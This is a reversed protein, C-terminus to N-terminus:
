LSILLWYHSLLINSIHICIRVVQQAFTTQQSQGSFQVAMLMKYASFKYCFFTPIRHRHFALPKKSKGRLLINRCCTYLYKLLFKIKIETVCYIKKNCLMM